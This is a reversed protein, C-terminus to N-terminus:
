EFMVQRVMRGSKTKLHLQYIGAPLNGKRIVFHDNKDEGSLVQKGMTDHLDWGLLSVGAPMRVYLTSNAPQPYLTPAQSRFQMSVVNSHSFQGDLDQVQLRYTFSGSAVDQDLYDGEASVENPMTTEQYITEWQEAANMKQLELSVLRDYGASEWQLLIGEEREGAGLLLDEANLPGCDLSATGSWNLDFPQAAPTFGDILLIYTEGAIVNLPSAFPENDCAGVSTLTGTPDLGTANVNTGCGFGRPYAAFNCRVPASNPPCASNPGWVAFDYDDNGNQPVISFNVTGSTQATFTYWSSNNEVGLCGSNTINLESVGPGSSNGSFPSSNCVPVASSCDQGSSPVPIPNDICLDFPGPTGNNLNTVIVYYVQGAVLASTSVAISSYNGNATNCAVQTGSAFDCPTPNFFLVTIEPRSGNAGNVTFDATPGQATFTFWVNNSGAMCGGVALDFTAAATSFGSQCTGDLTTINIANGCDNNAPQAFGTLCALVLLLLVSVARFGNGSYRITNKM